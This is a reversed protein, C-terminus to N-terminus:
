NTPNVSRERAIARIYQLDETNRPSLYKEMNNLLIGTTVGIAAGALGGVWTATSGIAHGPASEIESGILGGAVCGLLGLVIPVATQPEDVPRVYSVTDFLVSTYGTIEVDSPSPLFMVLAKDSVSMLYGDVTNGYSSHVVVHHSEEATKGCSLLAILLLSYLARKM